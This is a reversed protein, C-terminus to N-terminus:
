AAKTESVRPGRPHEKVELACLKSAILLKKVPQFMIM